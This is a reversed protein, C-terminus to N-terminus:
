PCAAEGDRCPKRIIIDLKETVLNDSSKVGVTVKQVGSDNASTCGSGVFASGNWYTVTPSLLTYGTPASFTPSYTTACATYATPSGAVANQLAEAYSRVAAGAVAQKRHLDSMRISVAIAGVVAIVATSMIVMAVLLEVLTEGREDAVRVRRGM